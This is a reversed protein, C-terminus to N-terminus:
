SSTIWKGRNSSPPIHLNWFSWIAVVSARWTKFVLDDISADRVPLSLLTQWLFCFSWGRCPVWRPVAWEVRQSDYSRRRLWFMAFDIGPKEACCFGRSAVTRKRDRSYEVDLGAARVKVRLLRGIELDGESKVGPEQGASRSRGFYSRGAWARVRSESIAQTPSYRVQRVWRTVVYKLVTNGGVTDPM